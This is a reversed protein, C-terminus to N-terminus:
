RKAVMYESNIHERHNQHTRLRWEHQGSDIVRWAPSLISDKGQLLDKINERSSGPYACFASGGLWREEMAPSTQWSFPDAFLFTSDEITAVRNMEYLHALPYPVRDLLNLSSVQQFTRKAFPLVQADALIFEVNDTKWDSPIIVTFAETMKGELPLLFKYRKERLLTRAAQIFGVSLDCGVAWNSTKGMEFTLRGAACGADFSSAVGTALLSEWFFPVANSAVPDLLDSYQSWMYRSVMDSDEYRMKSKQPHQELHAIGDLIPFVRGCKKCTLEGSM